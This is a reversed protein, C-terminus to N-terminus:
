VAEYDVKLTNECYDSMNLWTQLCTITTVDEYYHKQNINKYSCSLLKHGVVRVSKPNFTTTWFIPSETSLIIQKFDLTIKFSIYCSM